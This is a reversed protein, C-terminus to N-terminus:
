GRSINGNKSNNTERKPVSFRKEIDEPQCFVRAEEMTRVRPKRIKYHGWDIKVFAPKGYEKWRPSLRFKSFGLGQSKMGGRHVPDIFGKNILEEIITEFTSNAFGNKRAEYFPFKFEIEYYQPSGYEICSKRGFKVKGLFFPLAKAASPKLDRYATSTTNNLIDWPIFVGGGPIRYKTNTYGM